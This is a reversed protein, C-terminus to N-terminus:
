SSTSASGNDLSLSGLVSTVDDVNQSSTDESKSRNTVIKLGAVGKINVDKVKTERKIKRHREPHDNRYQIMQDFDITYIFGCIDIETQRKGTVQFDNEIRTSNIDDYKWWGSEETKGSYLWCPNEDCETLSDPIISVENEISELTFEERCLACKKTVSSSRIGKVCLYCFLHRFITIFNLLNYTFTTISSFNVFDLKSALYHSQICSNRYAFQVNRM